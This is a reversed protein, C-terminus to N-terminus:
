CLALIINKEQHMINTSARMYKKKPLDFAVM